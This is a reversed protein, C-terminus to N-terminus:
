TFKPCFDIDTTAIMQYMIEGWGASTSMLFLTVLANAVNDHNYIRNVWLGGSNLCDWKTVVSPNLPDTCYYMKGKFYSVGVVAFMLFFLMMIIAINIINPIAFFLARVAVKLGENRGILRLSRLIRLAKVVKLTSVLPTLCLYSFVLIVCDLLNWANRLFSKEGNFCLGYAVM